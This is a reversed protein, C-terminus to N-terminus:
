SVFLKGMTNKLSRLEPLDGLMKQCFNSFGVLSCQWIIESPLFKPPAKDATRLENYTRSALYIRVEPKM